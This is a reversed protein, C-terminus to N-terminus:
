FFTEYALNDHDKALTFSYKINTSDTFRVLQGRYQIEAMYANTKTKSRFVVVIIVVTYTTLNLSVTIIVFILTGKSDNFGLVVYLLSTLPNEKQEERPM